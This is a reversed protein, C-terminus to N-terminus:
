IAKEAKVHQLAANLKATHYVLEKNADKIRSRHYHANWAWTRTEKEKRLLRAEEEAKREKAFVDARVMAEAETAFVNEGDERYCGSHGYREVEVGEKLESEVSTLEVNLVTAEYDHTSIVGRPPEYGRACGACDITVQSDDGLTVTLYRKGFCDPCTIWREIGRNKAVWVQDGIKFRAM